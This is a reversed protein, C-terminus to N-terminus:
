RPTPRLQDRSGFAVGDLVRDLLRDYKGALWDRAALVLAHDRDLLVVQRSTGDRVEPTPRRAGHALTLEPEVRWGPVLDGSRGVVLVTGYADRWCAPPSPDAAAALAAGPACELVGPATLVTAGAEWTAPVPVDVGPLAWAALPPDPDDFRGHLGQWSRVAGAALVLLAAAAAAAVPLSTRPRRTGSLPSARGLLAGLVAGAALGGLHSVEDVGTSGATYGIASALWFGLAVLVARRSAASLERRRILAHAALAGLLGYVAGSAGVCPGRSLAVSAAAGVLGSGVYAIVTRGWGFLNDCFWAVFWAGAMNVALHLAGDHLLLSAPLRWWEGQRVLSDVKAGAAVLAVPDTAGGPLRPALAQFILWASVNVGVVLLPLASPRTLRSALSFSRLRERFRALEASRPTDV